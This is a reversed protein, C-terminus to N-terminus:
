MYSEPLTRSSFSCLLDDRRAEPDFSELAATNMPVLFSLFRTGGLRRM